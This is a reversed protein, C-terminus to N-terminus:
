AASPAVDVGRMMRWGLWVALLLWAVHACYYVPTLPEIFNVYYPFFNGLAIRECFASHEELWLLVKCPRPDEWNYSLIPNLVFAVSIAWAWVASVRLYWTLLRGEAHTMARALPLTLLPAVPLLYRAPPCWEGWWRSYDAVILYYPVVLIGLWLLENRWARPLSRRSWALRFLWALAILYVPNYMLLGYKQDFLLGFFGVPFLLLGNFEDHDRAPPWPVGYLYVLRAVYLGGLVGAIVLLAVHGWATSVRLQGGRAAWRGGLYLYALLAASLVVYLNHLWPLMGLCLAVACMQLVSNAPPQTAGNVAAAIRAAAGCRSRRFAYLVCLAGVPQPFILYAYILVPAAFSLMAWCLWAVRRRGSAEWALLFINLALLAALANLLLVVTLRRGLAYAPAIIFSLGLGHKTYTGPRQTHTAQPPLLDDRVCPIGVPSFGKWGPARFEACTPYYELWAKEVYQNTEDLDHDYLISQATILYFVEDGTPPKLYNLFHPTLVAYLAFALGWAALREALSPIAGFSDPRKPEATV